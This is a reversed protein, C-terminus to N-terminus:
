VFFSRMIGHSFEWNLLVTVSQPTQGFRLSPQFLMLKFCNLFFDHLKPSPPNFEENISQKVMIHNIFVHSLHTWAERYFQSPNNLKGQKCNRKKLARTHCHFKNVPKMTFTVHCLGTLSFNILLHM